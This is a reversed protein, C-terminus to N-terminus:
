ATNGGLRKDDGAQEGNLASSAKVSCLCQEATASVSAPYGCQELRLDLGCCWIAGVSYWSKM